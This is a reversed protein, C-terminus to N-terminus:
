SSASSIIKKREQYEIKQHESNSLVVLNEIRNDSSDGNIHHVHEWKELTRGVHQEMIWRHERIRKGNIYIYKYKHHPKNTKKFGHIKSFKPLKDKALCSRSCYKVKDRDIRWQAAYFECNCIPCTFNHGTKQRPKKCSEAKKIADKAQCTHSCYIKRDKTVEFPTLCRKCNKM